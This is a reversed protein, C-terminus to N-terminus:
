EGAWRVEDDCGLISYEPDLVFFRSAVIRAWWCRDGYVLLRVLYGICSCLFVPLHWSPQHSHIARRDFRPSCHDSSGSVRKLIYRWPDLGSSVSISVRSFGM